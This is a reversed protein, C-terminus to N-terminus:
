CQLKQDISVSLLLLLVCEGSTALESPSLQKEGHQVCSSVFCTEKGLKIAILM